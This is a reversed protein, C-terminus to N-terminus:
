GKSSAGPKPLPRCDSCYEEGEASVRFELEPHSLDTKGCIDCTHFAERNASKVKSQFKARRVAAEGRNQFDRVFGPGFVVFYPIFAVLIPLIVIPVQIVYSFLIAVDGIALWKAKVPIVGFLNVIHDPFLTAFAIFMLSFFIMAPFVNVLIGIMPILGLVVLCGVTALVYLNVRFAGWAGELADGIFWLFFVMFLIFLPNMTGPMMIFTFVRWVQGSYVKSADLMLYSLLNGEGEGTRSFLTLGWVALQFVGVRRILNPIALHGFRREASAILSQGPHASM